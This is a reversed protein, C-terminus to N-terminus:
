FPLAEAAVQLLLAHAVDHTNVDSQQRLDAVAPPAM